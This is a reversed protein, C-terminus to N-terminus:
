LTPGNLTYKLGHAQPHARMANVAGAVFACHFQSVRRSRQPLGNRHDRQPSRKRGVLLSLSEECSVQYHDRPRIQCRYGM